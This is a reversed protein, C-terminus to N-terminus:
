YTYKKHIKTEKNTKALNIPYPKHLYTKKEKIIRYEYQM